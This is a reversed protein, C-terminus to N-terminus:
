KEEKNDIRKFECRGNKISTLQLEGLQKETETMELKRQIATRSEGESIDINAKSIEIIDINLLGDAKSM